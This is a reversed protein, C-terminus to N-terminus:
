GGGTPAFAKKYVGLVKKAVHHDKAGKIQGGDASM